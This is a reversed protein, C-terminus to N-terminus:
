HLVADVSEADLIRGLWELLADSDAALVRERVSDSPPGFKREIQRLLVTAEGLRQGQDIYRDIFTQMIPEGTSTQQLLTRVTPEDVRQTGQVFYRLLQLATWHEAWSKHEFLLYVNLAEGRYAIRYVLDSYATRLDSAVYTDKGITLTALDLEALLAAPLECRLFDRAVESRTFSERFFTDHPSAIRDIVCFCLATDSPQRYSPSTGDTLARV